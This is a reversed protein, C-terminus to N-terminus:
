RREGYNVTTRYLLVRTRRVMQEAITELIRRDNQLHAVKSLLTVKTKERAGYKRNWHLSGPGDTSGVPPIVLPVGDDRINSSFGPYSEEEAVKTTTTFFCAM